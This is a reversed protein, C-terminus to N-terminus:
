FSSRSMKWHGLTDEINKEGNAYKYVTSTKWSGTYENKSNNYKGAYFIFQTGEYITRNGLHDVEYYNQYKKSFQIMMGKISGSIAANEPVGDKSEKIIGVFNNTGSTNSIQANFGIRKSNLLESDSENYWYLGHWTGEIEIHQTRFFSHIKKLLSIM